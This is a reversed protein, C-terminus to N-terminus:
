DDSPAEVGKPKLLQPKEWVGSRLSNKAGGAQPISGLESRIM